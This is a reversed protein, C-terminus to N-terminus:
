TVSMLMSNVIGVLCTFLSLGILLIMMQDIEGSSFIDVGAVQLLLNLEENGALILARTIGNTVLMYTLFAVALIVGLMTIMSRIFRRRMARWSIMFAISWRVPKQEPIEQMLRGDSVSKEMARTKFDNNEKM